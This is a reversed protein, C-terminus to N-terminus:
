KFCLHKFSHPRTLNNLLVHFLLELPQSKLPCTPSAHDQKAEQMDPRGDLVRVESFGTSSVLHQWSTRCPVFFIPLCFHSNETSTSFSFWFTWSKKCHCPTTSAVSPSSCNLWSIGRSTPFKKKLLLTKNYLLESCLATLKRQILNLRSSIYLQIYLM